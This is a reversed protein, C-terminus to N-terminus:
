VFFILLSRSFTMNPKSRCSPSDVIAFKDNILQVIERLLTCDEWTLAPISPYARLSCSTMSFDKLPSCHLAPVTVDEAQWQHRFDVFAECLESQWKGDLGTFLCFLCYFLIFLFFPGQSSTQFPQSLLPNENRCFCWMFSEPQVSVSRCTSDAFVKEFGKLHLRKFCSSIFVGIFNNLFRHVKVTM